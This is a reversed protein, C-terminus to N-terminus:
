ERIDHSSLLLQTLIPGDIGKLHISEEWGAEQAVVLCENKGNSLKVTNVVHGIVQEGMSPIFLPDGAAAEGAVEARYLRRKVKGLYETRAVIEQGPYCGKRFSIAGIKDMNAMQPVFLERTTATVWAIGARIDRLLWSASGILALDPMAAMVDERVPESLAALLAGSPLRILVVDGASAVEHVARPIAVYKALWSEVDGGMGGLLHWEGDLLELKVKSRLVFMSLRRVIADAIDASVMLFYDDRYQWVLFNALMRGKATSYTSYQSHVPTVERIDSSLQGQLFASTDEGSVKILRFAALPSLFAGSEMRELETAVDAFCVAVGEFQGGRAEFGEQWKNDM